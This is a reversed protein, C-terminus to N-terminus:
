TEEASDADSSLESPRQETEIVSSSESSSESSGKLKKPRKAADSSSDDSSSAQAVRFVGLTFRLDLSLTSFRNLFPRYYTSDPALQPNFTNLALALILWQKPQLDVELGYSMAHRRNTPEQPIVSVREDQASAPYLYSTLWAVSASVFLWSAPFVNLSVSHNTNWPANRVGTNLFPDCGVSAGACSGIRPTELEGTTYKFANYNVGFVYSMSGFSGLAQTLAILGGLVTQMTRAQSALSTPLRASVSGFTTLGFDWTHLISGVGLTLDSLRTEGKYTTDDPETLEKDLSLRASVFSRPLFWYRPALTMLMGYYPNYDQEAGKDLSNLSVANSYTLSSGKFDNVGLEAHAGTISVCLLALSSVLACSVRRFFLSM